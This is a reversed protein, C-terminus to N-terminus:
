VSPNGAITGDEMPALVGLHYRRRSGDLYAMVLVQCHPLELLGAPDLDAFAAPPFVPLGSERGDLPHTM